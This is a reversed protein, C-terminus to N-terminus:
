TTGGASSTCASLGSSSPTHVSEGDQGQELLQAAPASVKSHEIDQFDVDNVSLVQDGEQLGARHADSDPIVQSPFFLSLLLSEGCLRHWLEGGACGPCGLGLAEGRRECPVPSSPSRPGRHALLVGHAPSPDPFPAPGDSQQKTRPLNCSHTHLHVYPMHCDGRAGLQSLLVWPFLCLVPLSRCFSLCVKSIFIGLQSAKGGRINFGLQSLFWCHLATVGKPGPGKGGSVDRKRVSCLHQHRLTWGPLLLCGDREGLKRPSRVKFARPAGQERGKRLEM